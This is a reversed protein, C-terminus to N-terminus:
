HKARKYQNNLSRAAIADGTLEGSHLLLAGTAAALGLKGSKSRTVTKLARGFSPAEKTAESVGSRLAGGSKIQWKKPIPKAVKRNRNNWANKFEGSAMRLANLGGVGAVVNLVQGTRIEKRSMDKGLAGSKSIYGHEVGFASLM